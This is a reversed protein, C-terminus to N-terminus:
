EVEKLRGNRRLNDKACDTMEGTMPNIGYMKLPDVGEKIKRHFDKGTSRRGVNRASSADTPEAGRWGVNVDQATMYQYLIYTIGYLHNEEKEKQWVIM